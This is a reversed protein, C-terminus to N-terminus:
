PCSRRCVFFIIYGVFLASIIFGPIFGALFLKLISKEALVGYIILMTSPPIMFGLTGSSALSGISMMHNYGRRDLEALTVKGITAAIAASSGSVAAFLTCGIVNTHMLKGPIKDVWPALGSFILDSLRTKFLLEAMFVFLALAIMTPGTATIWLSFGLHKIFPMSSRFISIAGIGAGTLGLWGM